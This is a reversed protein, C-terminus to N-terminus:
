DIPGDTWGAAGEATRRRIQFEVRRNKARGEPTGNDAIPRRPGFGRAELRRADVGHDTLWKVVSLARRQSLGLNARERGVNDTHGDVAVRAIEPHEQMVAAVEGLLAFSDEKIDAKGTAFNVQQLLVIQTGELRVSAPCGNTKPDETPKGRESPCADKADTIGDGDTDAPCGARAPDASAVGPEDPCRDDADQFGDGDRDPPCGRRRAQPSADGIVAPCADEADPVADGDLDPPAAPAPRPRAAAEPGPGGHAPGARPAGEAARGGLDTAYTVSAFARFAPTGPLRGLGPGGGGGITLDGLAWRGGLLLEGGFRSGVIPSADDAAASFVLEPGVQLRGLRYAAGAGGLVESGTLSAASDAQFRAGLAASWLWRPHIAGVVIAPALRAASAGSFAGDDGTPLWTSLRIAAAPLQGDQELAVARAGVRLDGVAAGSPAEVAAGGIAGSDGGQDLTFPADLDVEFREAIEVAASLHLVLQRDVWDIAGGERESRVSLPRHAYALSLAAGPRLAGQVGASPVAHLADTAPAPDFRDLPTASQARAGLPALLLVITALPARARAPWHPM